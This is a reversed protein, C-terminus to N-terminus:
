RPLAQPPTVGLWHAVIMSIRVMQITSIPETSPVHPTRGARLMIVPVLRDYDHFSGHATAVRESIEEAIWGRAPLYFVEGSREIDLMMCIAAADGTRQDCGGAYSAVRDALAIGPIGRLAAVIADLAQERQAVPKARAAATLYVNPYKASAVWAGPGLARSAAANASAQLEDFVFRGGGSREALPAGGHDSTVLMAWRGSGVVADLKALFDALQLDLRLMMDWTEWSEHGWGHGAYDHASLSLVLLDPNADSGLGEAAIAAIGTSLVVENGLPLAFLADGPHKTTAAVHPFTAGFGKEGVEGPQADITASVAAIRAPDLPTWIEALRPAIPARRNHEDLWAVPTASTWAVARADYWVATGAHGLPLIAARDKLSISIAKAQEAPARGTNAAAIADGLGPVRLWRATRTAGDEVSTTAREADRDWWENAVIGSRYPPEGTGLLAHGPATLTAPTPYTGLHWEGERLLRGFGATLHPRKAAFAWAPLQDIVLLVVLRPAPPPPPRPATTAAPGCAAFIVLLLCRVRAPSGENTVPRSRVPLSDASDLGLTRSHQDQTPTRTPTPPEDIMKTLMSVIPVLLTHGDTIRDIM